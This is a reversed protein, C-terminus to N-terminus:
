IIRWQPQVWIRSGQKSERICLSIARGNEIPKGEKDWKRFAKRFAARLDESEDYMNTGTNIYFRWKKGKICISPNCGYFKFDRLIGEFSESMLWEKSFVYPISNELEEKENLNRPIYLDFNCVWRSSKKKM